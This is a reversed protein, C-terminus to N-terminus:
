AAMDVDDIDQGFHDPDELNKSDKKDEKKKRYKNIDVIKNTSINTSADGPKTEEQSTDAQGFTGVEGTGIDIGKSKPLATGHTLPVVKGTGKEPSSVNVQEVPKNTEGRAIALVDGGQGYIEQQTEWQRFKKRRELITKRAALEEQSPGAKKLAEKQISKIIREQSKYYKPTKSGAAYKIKLGMEKQLEPNRIIKENLQKLFGEIHKTEVPMDGKGGVKVHGLLKGSMKKVSYAIPRYSGGSVRDMIKRIQTSTPRKGNVTFNKRFQETIVKSSTYPNTVM